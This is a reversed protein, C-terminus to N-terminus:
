ITAVSNILTATFASADATAHVFEFPIQEKLLDPGAVMTGADAFFANGTLTLQASAGANFALTLTGETGAVMDDYLDQNRWDRTVTGGIELVGTPNIKQEGVTGTPCGQQRKALAQRITVTATDFCETGGSATLTAHMFTLPTVTAYSASALSQDDVERIAALDVQAMVQEGANCVIELQEIYSGVYDFPHVTPATAVDPRGVQFTFSPAPSSGPTITHTYPNSGTTSVGGLVGRLLPGITEPYVPFSIQGSPLQGALIKRKALRRGAALHRPRIFQPNRKLSEQVVELFTTPAQRTGATTEVIYGVQASIGSPHAM